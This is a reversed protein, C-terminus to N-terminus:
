CRDEVDGLLQIQVVASATTFTDTFAHSVPRQERPEDRSNRASQSKRQMERPTRTPKPYRDFEQSSAVSQIDLQCRSQPSLPILADVDPAPHMLWTSAEGIGKLMVPCERISLNHTVVGGTEFALRAVAASSVHARMPVSTSEMRSAYNITQGFFSFHPRTTGIVGSFAHGSHVGVRIRLRDGLPLAPCLAVVRIADKAFAMVRTCQTDYVAADHGCVAMYADGITQVKFVSHTATLADFKSYVDHLMDVVTATDYKGCLSTYGVIDSFFVTICAHCHTVRDAGAKLETVVEDPLIDSLLRSGTMADESKRHRAIMCALQISLVDFSFPSRIVSCVGINFMNHVRKDSVCYGLIALVPTRMRVNNYADMFPRCLTTGITCYLVFAQPFSALPDPPQWGHGTLGYTSVAYHSSKSIGNSVRKAEVRKSAVCLGTNEYLFTIRIPSASDILIQAPFDDPEEALFGLDSSSDNAEGAFLSSVLSRLSRM